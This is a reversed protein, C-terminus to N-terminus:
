ATHIKGDVVYIVEEKSMEGDEQHSALLDPYKEEIAEQTETKEEASSEASSSGREAIWLLSGLIMVAALSLAIIKELQKKSITKM